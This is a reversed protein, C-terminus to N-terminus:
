WHPLNTKLDNFVIEPEDKEYEVIVVVPVDIQEKCYKM